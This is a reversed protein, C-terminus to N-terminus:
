NKAKILTDSLDREFQTLIYNKFDEMNEYVELENTAKSFSNEAKLVTEGTSCLIISIQIKFYFTKIEIIEEESEYIKRKRNQAIGGFVFGDTRKKRFGIRKEERYEHIRFIAVADIESLTFGSCGKSKIFKELGKDTYHTKLNSKKVVTFAGSILAKKISYRCDNILQQPRENGEDIYLISIKNIKKIEDNILTFETTSCSTLLFIVLVPIILSFIYNRKGPM